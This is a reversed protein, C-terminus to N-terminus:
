DVSACSSTYQWSRVWVSQCADFAHLRCCAADAACSRDRLPRRALPCGFGSLELRDYDFRRVMVGAVATPDSNGVQGEQFTHQSLQTEPLAWIGPGLDIM